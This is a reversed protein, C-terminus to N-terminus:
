GTPRSDNVQRDVTPLRDTDTSLQNVTPRSNFADTKIKSNEKLYGCNLARVSELLM